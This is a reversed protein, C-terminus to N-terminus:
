CAPFKRTVGLRRPQNSSDRLSTICEMSIGIFQRLSFPFPYPDSVHSLSGCLCRVCMRSISHITCVKCPDSVDLNDLTAPDLLGRSVVAVDDRELMTAFFAVDASSLSKEDTVNTFDALLVRQSENCKWVVQLGEPIDIPWEGRPPPLADQDVVLCDREEIYGEDEQLLCDDVAASASSSAWAKKPWVTPAAAASKNTTASTSAKKGKAERPPLRRRAVHSSQSPEASAPPSASNIVSSTITALPDAAVATAAASPPLTSSKPHPEKAQPETSLSNDDSAVQKGDATASCSLASFFFLHPPCSCFFVFSSEIRLRSKKRAPHNM